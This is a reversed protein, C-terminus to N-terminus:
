KVHLALNQYARQKPWNIRKIHCRPEDFTHNAPANRLDQMSFFKGPRSNKKLLKVHM